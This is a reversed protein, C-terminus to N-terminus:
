PPKLDPNGGQGGNAKDRRAKEEDRVMRRSVIVGKPLGKPVLAKVDAPMAPDGVVSYVKTAKLEGLLVNVERESGGLLAALQKPTPVVGEVILFGRHASEHMLSLLDAWLGRAGFTCLRLKPTSRWARSYFKFWPKRKAPDKM